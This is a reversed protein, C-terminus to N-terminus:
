SVPIDFSNKWKPKWSDLEPLLPAYNELKSQRGEHLYDKDKHRVTIDVVFVGQKNKVVLRTKLAGEKHSSLTPERTIAAEKDQTAIEFIFDKLRSQRNV